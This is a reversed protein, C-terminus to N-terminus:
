HTDDFDFQHVASGNALVASAAPVKEHAGIVTSSARGGWKHTLSRIAIVDECATGAYVCAITDLISAKAADVVNKPLDEYRTKALHAAIAISADPERPAAAQSTAST